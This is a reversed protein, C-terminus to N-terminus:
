DRVDKDGEAAPSSEAMPSAPANAAADPPRPGRRFQWAYDGRPLGSVTLELGVARICTAVPEGEPVPAVTVEIWARVQDDAVDVPVVAPAVSERSNLWVVARHVALSDGAWETGAAAEAAAACGGDRVM